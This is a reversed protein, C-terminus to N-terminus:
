VSVVCEDDLMVIILLYGWFFNGAEESIMDVSLVIEEFKCKTFLEETIYVIDIAQLLM